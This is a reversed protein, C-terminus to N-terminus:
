GGWSTGQDGKSRAWSGNGFPRHDKTHQGTEAKASAGVLAPSVQSLVSNNRHFNAIRIGLLADRISRVAAPLFVIRL